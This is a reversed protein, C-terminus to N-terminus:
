FSFFLYDLLIFRLTFCERLVLQAVGAHRECSNIAVEVWGNGAEGAAHHEEAM